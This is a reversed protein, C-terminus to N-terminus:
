PTVSQQAISDRAPERLSINILTTFLLSSRNQMNQMDERHLLPTIATRGGRAVAAYRSPQAALARSNQSRTRLDTELRINFPKGVPLWGSVFIPVNSSLTNM